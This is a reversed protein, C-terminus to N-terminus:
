LLFSNTSKYILYRSDIKVLGFFSSQDLLKRHVPDVYIIYIENRSSKLAAEINLLVREMIKEGFPNYFYCVLSGVPIDSQVADCCKLFIDPCQPFQSRYKFINRQAIQHLEESFEVGIIERFPFEAALLLIRGKGSGFDVFSFKSFEIEFDSFINKFLGMDTPQYRVAYKLNEYPIALAGIEHIDTTDTGYQNDFARDPQSINTPRFFQRTFYKLNFLILSFFKLPGHRKWARAIRTLM